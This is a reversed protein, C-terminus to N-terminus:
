VRIKFMTAQNNSTKSLLFVVDAEKNVHQWSKPAGVWSPRWTQMCRSIDPFPTPWDRREIDIVTVKDNM